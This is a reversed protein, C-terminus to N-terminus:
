APTDKVKAEVVGDLWWFPIQAVMMIPIIWWRSWGAGLAAFGVILAGTSGCVVALARRRKDIRLPTGCEPCDWVSLITSKISFRSWTVPRRCRPCCRHAFM